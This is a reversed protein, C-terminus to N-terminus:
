FQVLVRYRRSLVWTSPMSCFLKVLKKNVGPINRTQEATDLM